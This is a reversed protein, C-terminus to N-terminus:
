SKLEIIFYKLNDKLDQWEIKYEGDFCLLENKKGTPKKVEGRILKETRFMKYIGNGNKNMYFVHDDAFMMFYCNRFDAKRLQELFRVDKCAKFMQEPYQGSRPFKIEICHKEKKDPTFFVVDM